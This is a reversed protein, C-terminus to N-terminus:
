VSWVTHHKGPAVRPVLADFLYRGRAWKAARRGTSKTLTLTAM